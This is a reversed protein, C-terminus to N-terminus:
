DGVLAGDDTIPRYWFDFVFEGEIVDDTEITAIIDESVAIPIAFTPFFAQNQGFKAAGTDNWWINGDTGFVDAIQGNMFLGKSSATGIFLAGDNNTSILPITVYGYVEAIAVRGTRPFLDITGIAGHGATGDFVVTKRVHVLDTMAAIVEPSLMALTISAPAPTGGMDAIVEDSLHGLLVAGEEDPIYPESGLIHPHNPDSHQAM